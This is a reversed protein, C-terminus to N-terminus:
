DAVPNRDAHDVVLTQVPVKGARLKLGLQEQVAGLIAAISEPANSAPPGAGSSDLSSETSAQVVEWQLELDYVGEIKTRDEVQEGLLRSLIAAFDLLSENKASPTGRRSTSMAVGGAAKKLKPGKPAVILTYGRVLRPESHCRLAFRDALLAQLMQPFQSMRAAPPPKAVVSYTETDLWSPGVVAYARFAYAYQIMSKLTAKQFRVGNPRVQMSVLENGSRKVSAVEFAAASLDPQASPLAFLGRAALAVCAVRGAFHLRRNWCGM